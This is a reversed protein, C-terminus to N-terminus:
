KQNRWTDMLTQILNEILVRQQATLENFEKVSIRNFPWDSGYEKNLEVFNLQMAGRGQELWLPNVRLVKALSRLNRPQLRTGTEYSAITSQSLGCLAALKSQTYGAQHRAHQLRQAFTTM